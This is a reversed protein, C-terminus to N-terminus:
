FIMKLAKWIGTVIGVIINVLIKIFINGEYLNIMAKHTPPIFWFILFIGIISLIIIIITKIEKFTIKHKVKYGLSRFYDEYMQRYENEASKEIKKKLQEQEQKTLRSYIEQWKEGLMSEFDEAQKNNINSEYNNYDVNDNRYYENEVNNDYTNSSYEKDNVTQNEQNLKEDYEARKSEDSLIDYADNIKKMMEESKLRNEPTQIDPHYKKVLVKYAKEIVEPSAKSSVELIDYLNEM